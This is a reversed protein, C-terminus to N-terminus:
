PARTPEPIAAYGDNTAREVAATLLGPDIWEDSLFEPYVPLRPKLDFGAARTVAELRELNPWPAEPNVWDITVPSVGGWDNIGADLYVSFDDTLNPPVQLNAEAGLIVRALAVVRVFFPIEPEPSNRMRTDAKARFNQMIFEQIHGRERQLDALALLSDVIEANNEGIGVLIGSTFPVSQRGAERITEVRVAPVKDPCNHHPMGPETLRDSINELMLGMSVNTPRLAAIDEATMIGPNAHPFLRTESRILEAMQVVYDITTECGHGDLFERAQPWKAEPKDGLTLLAETCGHTDGARVIALVDDPTLYQGGAGPPKVFTCYTCTDRCLTTIPVFVKRSYTVVRGHGEDRLRGAEALLDDTEVAGNVYAIALDRDILSSHM